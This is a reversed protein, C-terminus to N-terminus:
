CKKFNQKGCKPCVFDYHVEGIDSSTGFHQIQVTGITVSEKKCSECVVQMKVM